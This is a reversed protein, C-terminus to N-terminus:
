GNQWEEVWQEEGKCFPVMDCGGHKMYNNNPLPIGDVPLPKPTERDHAQLNNPKQPDNEYNGDGNDDCKIYSIAFLLIFYHYTTKYM